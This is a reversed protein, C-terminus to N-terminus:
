VESKGNPPLSHGVTQLPLTHYSSLTITFEANVDDTANVGTFCRSVPCVDTARDCNQMFNQLSLPPCLHAHTTITVSRYTAVETHMKNKTYKRLFTGFLLSCLCWLM